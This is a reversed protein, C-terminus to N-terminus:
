ISKMTLEDVFVMNCLPDVNLFITLNHLDCIQPQTDYKTSTIIGDASYKPEVHM